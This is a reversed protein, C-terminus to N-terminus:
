RPKIPNPRSLAWFIAAFVGLISIFASGFSLFRVNQLSFGSFFGFYWGRQEDFALWYPYPPVAIVLAALSAAVWKLNPLWLATAVTISVAAIHFKLNISTYIASMLFGPFLLAVVGAILVVGRIPKSTLKM